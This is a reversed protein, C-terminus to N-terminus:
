SCRGTVERAIEDAIVDPAQMSLPMEEERAAVCPEELKPMQPVPIQEAFQSLLTAGDNMLQVLQDKSTVATQRIARIEVLQKKGRVARIGEFQPVLWQGRAKKCQDRHNDIFDKWEEDIANIEKGSALNERVFTKYPIWVDVEDTQAHASAFSSEQYAASESKRKIGRQTEQQDLYWKRKDDDSKGAWWIKLSSKVKWRDALSKYSLCCKNCVGKRHSMNEEPFKRRCKTCEFSKADNDRWKEACPMAVLQNNNRMGGGSSDGGVGDDMRGGSAVLLTRASSAAHLEKDDVQSGSAALLLKAGSAAESEDKDDMRSRSAASRSPPAVARYARIQATSAHLDQCMIIVIFEEGPCPVFTLPRCTILFNLVLPRIIM